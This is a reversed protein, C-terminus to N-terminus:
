IERFKGSAKLNALVKAFNRRVMGEPRKSSWGDYEIRYAYPLNNTLFMDFNGDLRSVYDQVKNITKSGNPDVIDFTGSAPNDSSIIWNGALRGTLVPTDQIVLTFLGIIIAQHLDNMDQISGEVWSSLKVSFSGERLM